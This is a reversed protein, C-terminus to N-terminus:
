VMKYLPSSCGRIKPIRPTGPVLFSQVENKKKKPVENKIFIHTSYRQLSHPLIACLPLSSFILLFLSQIQTGLNELSISSILLPRCLLPLIVGEWKLFKLLCSSPEKGRPPTCSPSLRAAQTLPHVEPSWCNSRKKKPRVAQLIKTGQSPISGEGQPM